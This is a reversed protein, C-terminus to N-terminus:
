GGAEDLFSAVIDAVDNRPELWPVHGHDALEEFRADPMAAAVPRGVAPEYFYDGAGWVFQTPTSLGDLEDRVVMEPAVGRVGATAQLLSRLSRQREPMRGAEFLCALLDDDIAADDLVLIPSVQARVDEISDARTLRFMLRNIFPVGLLRYPVPLDRTLGAPAGVLAISEVADPRDIAYALTQFGGFSNGVISVRDLGVSALFADLLRRNFARIDGGAHDFPDSLGRGPRDLAFVRFRDALDALLPVFTAATVGVGHLCLVPPGDGAELYHVTEVPGDDLTAFRSTADLEHRDILRGQARRYREEPGDADERPPNM